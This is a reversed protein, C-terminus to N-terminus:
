TLKGSPITKWSGSEFTTPPLLNLNLTESFNSEELSDRIFELPEDDNERSVRKLTGRLNQKSVRLIVM